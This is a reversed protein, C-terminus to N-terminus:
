LHLGKVFLGNTPNLERGRELYPQYNPDRVMKVLEAVCFTTDLEFSCVLLWFDQFIEVCEGLTTHAVVPRKQSNPLVSNACCWQLWEIRRAKTMKDLLNIIERRDDKNDYDKIIDVGLKMM